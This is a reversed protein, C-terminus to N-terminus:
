GSAGSTCWPSTCMGMPVYMCCAVHMCMCMSLSVAILSAQYSSKTVTRLLHACGVDFAVLLVLLSLREHNGHWVKERRKAVGLLQHEVGLHDAVGEIDAALVVGSNPCDGIFTGDSRMEAQYTALTKVPKGALDGDCEATTEIRPMGYVKAPLAKNVCKGKLSGVHNGIKM